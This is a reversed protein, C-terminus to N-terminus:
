KKYTNVYFINAHENKDPLNVQNSGPNIYNFESIEQNKAIFYM